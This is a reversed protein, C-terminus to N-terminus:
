PIYVSTSLRNIGAAPPCDRHNWLYSKPATFWQSESWTTEWVYAAHCTIDVRFRGVGSCSVSLSYGDSVPRGCSVSAEAAPAAAVGVAGLVAISVLGSTIKNRLRM